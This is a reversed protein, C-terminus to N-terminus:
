RVERNEDSREAAFCKGPLRHPREALESSCGHPNWRTGLWVCLRDDRDQFLTGRRLFVLVREGHQLLHVLRMRAISVPVQRPQAHVARSCPGTKTTLQQLLAQSDDVRIM